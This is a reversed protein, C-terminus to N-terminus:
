RKQAVTVGFDIQANEFYKKVDYLERDIADVVAIPGPHYNTDHFIVYGKSVLFETMKWENLVANISHWGDIMLISIENMGIDLMKSRITDFERSDIEITHVKKKPNNIHKKCLIDVGLYPTEDLKNSLLVHTSSRDGNVDRAVGVELIGKCDNKVDLICDRIVALNDDTFEYEHSWGIGSKPKPMWLLDVFADVDDNIESISPVFSLGKINSPAEKVNLLKSKESLM